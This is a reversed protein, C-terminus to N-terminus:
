GLMFLTGLHAIDMTTLADIWVSIYDARFADPKTCGNKGM